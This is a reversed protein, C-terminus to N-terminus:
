VLLLQLLLGHLLLPGLALLVQLLLLLLLHIQECAQQLHYHHPDTHRCVDGRLHCHLLLLQHLLLASDPLHHAM